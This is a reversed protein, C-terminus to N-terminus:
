TAFHKDLQEQFNAWQGKVKVKYASTWYNGKSDKGLVFFGNV